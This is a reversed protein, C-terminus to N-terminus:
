NLMIGQQKYEDIIKQSSELLNDVLKKYKKDIHKIRSFKKRADLMLALDQRFDKTSVLRKHYKDLAAVYAGYNKTNKLLEYVRRSIELARDDYGFQELVDGYDSLAGYSKKNNKDFLQNLEEYIQAYIAICAKDGAKKLSLGYNALAEVKRIESVSDVTKLLDYAEKMYFPVKSKDGLNDLAVGYSSFIASKIKADVMFSGNKIHDLIKDYIKIAEKNRNQKILNDAYIINALDSNEDPKNGESRGFIKKVTGLALKEDGSQFAEVAKKFQNDTEEVSNQKPIFFINKKNIHKQLLSSWDCGIDLQSLKDNSLWKLIDDASLQYNCEEIKNIYSKFVSEAEGKNRKECCLEIYHYGANLSLRALEENDWAISANYLKYLETIESELDAGANIRKQREIYAMKLYYMYHDDVGYYKGVNEFIIEWIYDAKDSRNFADLCLTYLLAAPLFHNSSKFNQIESYLQEAVELAQQHHNHFKLLFYGYKILWKYHEETFKKNIANEWIENFFNFASNYDKVACMYFACRGQYKIWRIDDKDFNKNIYEISDQFVIDADEDQHNFYLALAYCLPYGMYEERYKLNNWRQFGERAANLAEKTRKVNGLADVYTLTYTEMYKEVEHSPLNRFQPSNLISDRCKESLEVADQCYFGESLCEIGQQILSIREWDMSDSGCIEILNFLNDLAIYLAKGKYMSASIKDLYYTVMCKMFEYLDFKINNNERTIRSELFPLLWDSVSYDIGRKSIFFPGKELEVISQRSGDGLVQFIDRDNEQVRGLATLKSLLLQEGDCLENFYSVALKSM